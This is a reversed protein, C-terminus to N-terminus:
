MRPVPPAKRALKREMYERDQTPLHAFPAVPGARSALLRKLQAVEETLPACRPCPGSTPRGPDPSTSPARAKQRARYERFYAADHGTM